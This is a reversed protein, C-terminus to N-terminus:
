PFIRATATNSYASDGVLNSARVRYSYAASDVIFADNVNTPAVGPQNAGGPLFIKNGIVSAWIGHRPNPMDPLSRWTNTLPNYAEVQGHLVM